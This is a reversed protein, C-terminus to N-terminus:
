ALQVSAYLRFPDRAAAELLPDPLRQSAFMQPSEHYGLDTAVVLLRCQAPMHICPQAALHLLGSQPPPHQARIMVQPARAPDHLREPDTAPRLVTGGPSSPHRLARPVTADTPPHTSLAVCMQLPVRASAQSDPSSRARFPRNRGPSSPRDRRFGRLGPACSSPRAPADRSPSSVAPVSWSVAGPPSPMRSPANAASVEKMYSLGDQEYM